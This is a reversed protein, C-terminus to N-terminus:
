EPIGMIRECNNYFSNFIEDFRTKSIGGPQALLREEPWLIFLPIFWFMSLVKRDSFDVQDPEVKNLHKDYLRIQISTPYKIRPL